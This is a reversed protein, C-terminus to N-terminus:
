PKPVPSKALTTILFPHRYSAAFQYPVAGFGRFRKADPRRLLGYGEYM